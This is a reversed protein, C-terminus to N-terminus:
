RRARLVEERVATDCGEAGMRQGGTGAVAAYEGVEPYTAFRRVATDYGQARM